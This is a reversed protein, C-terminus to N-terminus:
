TFGSLRQCCGVENILDVDVGPAMFGTCSVTILHTIRRPEVHSEALARDVATRALPYAHEEYFQM